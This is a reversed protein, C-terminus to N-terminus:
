IFTRVKKRAKPLLPAAAPADDMPLRYRRIGDYSHLAGAVAGATAVCGIEGVGKAGYGGVEDPVELLVVDVPPMHKARVIGMDRLALSDPIGNTSTFDESLAYGLGMHVGGEMQEACLRPNIARGVDNAVLVRELGGNGDLIVVQAAYSFTLHTTPNLVSEPTGPRTTFNYVCEGYYERGALQALPMTKLDAALQQAARQAAACSLTTARSAWTEGCKEGLDKDWRITMIDAPLGTEECVAQITATYLGQGMETYGNLIEIRADNAVRIAIYGGEITGNGLGTSKIGCGIGKYKAKKYVGKVAELTARIGAVSNRMIQGTGFADGPNLVNRDRIDWGDVGVREALIDMVGEMAFQAQNSGFGRMAGANPNNTYVAKAEVDVNPIRYVGTSHCAARLACKASTTHYGGADAVIRSRLALLRGQEDAGVTIKVTMAHRKVHHQTSQPRTLVVKVPRQLLYAAMATQGQISLEEKAGFAGGSAALAIEVQAPDLNLIRAIQAHDYVSGQSQAHVKVGQRQPVALCAEPELFAIDIPQTDFTTDIVHASAALAADVDGRSFATTPQLVNSPRPAFTEASHVLPAGPALASVTDTIPELVNYDTKVRAAAQRAHFATDAVVMALFDAVCCTLEGEAVFVPQDPDNLGTGRNGPVDAATFVRVVGPMAAAEATHIKLVRARPHGTLVMAGHLMGPARMDDVFPIEGLAQELGRHRPISRGVGDGNSKGNTGAFAPNRRLGLDEGFYSHRRPETHPLRGGNKCAEGATQISDLIRGYGTCRCLHGDLAKAVTARDGTQDHEMLSAARVIIGPICFGCQVGGELLFAESLLRRKEEPLGEVTVVDKGHMQEPKRLCSMAPYGDVMILCCGCSGEPACGDKVSTVGCEERLVELFHMGPEYAADVAKGNLNFTIRPM